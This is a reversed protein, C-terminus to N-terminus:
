YSVGQIFIILIKVKIAKFIQNEVRVPISLSKRPSSGSVIISSNSVFMSVKKYKITIKPLIPPSSDSRKAAMFIMCKTTASTFLKRQIQGSNIVLPDDKIKIQFSLM